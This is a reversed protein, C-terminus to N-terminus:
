MDQHTSHSAPVNNRKDADDAATDTDAETAKNSQVASEHETATSSQGAMDPAAVPKSDELVPQEEMAAQAAQSDAGEKPGTLTDVVQQDQVAAGESSQM